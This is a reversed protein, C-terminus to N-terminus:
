LIKKLDQTSFLPSSTIDKIACIYISSKKLWNEELGTKHDYM